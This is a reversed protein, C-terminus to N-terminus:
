GGAQKWMLCVGSGAGVALPGESARPFIHNFSLAIQPSVPHFHGRPKRLIGMKWSTELSGEGMHPLTRARVCVRASICLIARPATHTPRPWTAKPRDTPAPPPGHSPGCTFGLPSLWGIAALRGTVLVEQAGDSLGEPQLM